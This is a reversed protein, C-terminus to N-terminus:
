TGSNVDTVVPIEEMPEVKVNDVLEVIATPFDDDNNVAATTRLAIPSSANKTANAIIGM